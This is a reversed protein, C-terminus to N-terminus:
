SIAAAYGVAIPGVLLLTDVLDLMGGAPGLLSSSDKVGRSRKLLSESLDALIALVGLAAGMCAGLLADDPVAVGAAELTAPRVVVGPLLWAGFLAPLLIGGVAGEWTKNPSIVPALKHKGMLKGTFYAGTDSAKAVLTVMVCFELGGRLLLGILLALGGVYPLQFWLSSALRSAAPGPGRPLHLVVILATLLSAGLLIEAVRTTFLNPRMTAIVVLALWTFGCLRGLVRRGGTAGGFALLEDLAGLMLVAALLSCAWAREFSEVRHSHDWWWAGLIVGLLCLGIATRKLM